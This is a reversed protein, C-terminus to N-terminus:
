PQFGVENTYRPQTQSCSSKGTKDEVYPISNHKQSLRHCNKKDKSPSSFDATMKIVHAFCGIQPRLWAAGVANVTNRANVTTVPIPADPRRLKWQKAMGKALDESTHSVPLRTQLVHSKM